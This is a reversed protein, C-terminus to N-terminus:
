CRPDLCTIPGRGYRNTFAPNLTYLFLFFFFLERSEDFTDLWVSVESRGGVIVEERINADPVWSLGTIRGSESSSGTTECSSVGLSPVVIILGRRGGGSGRSRSSMAYM